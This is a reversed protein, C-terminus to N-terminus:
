GKRYRRWGAAALALLGAGVAAGAPEPVPAYGSVLFAEMTGDPHMATGVIVSGDASVGRADVLQWGAWASMDVGADFLVQLLDRMGSSPDWVFAGFGEPNEATPEVAGQGVVVSGDGSAAYAYSAFAGGPLDGLGFMGGGDTHLFAEDGSGSSSYGVTVLGDGSVGWAESYYDGGTLDGLAQLTPNATTWRFAETGSAHDGYGVVTHGDGSVGLAESLTGAIPYYGLSTVGGSDWRVATPLFLSDFASGVIVSGDSSVAYAADNPPSLVSPLATMPGPLTWVTAPGSWPDDGDNGYGAVISGDHSAAYAASDFVGGALDGLGAMGGGSTWRFAESFGGVASSSDGWGVAVQGDGSVGEGYSYTGGPLFGLPTFQMGGQASLGAAAVAAFLWVRKFIRKM